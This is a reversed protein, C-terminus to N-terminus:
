YVILVNKNTNISYTENVLHSINDAQILKMLQKTQFDLKLKYYNQWEAILADIDSKVQVYRDNLENGTNLSEVYSGNSMKWQTPDINLNPNNLTADKAQNAIFEDISSGHNQYNGIAEVLYGKAISGNEWDFNVAGKFSKNPKYSYVNKEIEKEVGEDNKEKVKIKSKVIQDGAIMEPTPVRLVDNKVFVRNEYEKIRNQSIYMQDLTKQMKDKIEKEQVSGVTENYLKMVEPIGTTNLAELKQANAAGLNAYITFQDYKKFSEDKNEFKSKNDESKDESLESNIRVVIDCIQKPFGANNAFYLGIYGTNGFSIVSGVPKNEIIGSNGTINAGTMFMQYNKANTTVQRVDDFHLLVLAKTKDKNTYIGTVKGNIGTKSTTFEKNYLAKDSILNNNYVIYQRFGIGLVICLLVLLSLAVVSFREMAHHQDLFFKSKLNNITDKM